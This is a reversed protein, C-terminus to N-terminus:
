GRIVRMVARGILVAPHVFLGYVWRLGRPGHSGASVWYGAWVKRVLSAAGKGCTDDLVIEVWERSLWAPIVRRPLQGAVVLRALLATEFRLLWRPAGMAQELARTLATPASVGLLAASVAVSLYLCRAARWACARQALDAWNNRAELAHLLDAIDLMARLSGHFHLDHGLHICCHLLLDEVCPVKVRYQGAGCPVARTWFEDIPLQVPVWHPVVHRHVEVVVKTTPSVLPPLHHHAAYFQVNFQHIAPVYGARLLAAFAREADYARVLVDADGITRRSFDGEYLSLALACGKLPMWEIGETDFLRGIAQLEARLQEGHVVDTLYERRLEARLRPEIVSPSRQVKRWLRPVVQQERGEKILTLWTLGDIPQARWTDGHGVVSSLLHKM